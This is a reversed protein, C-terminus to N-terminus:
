DTDPSAIGQHRHGMQGSLNSGGRGGMFGYRGLNIVELTTMQRAIQWYQSALLVVTWSLQLTAWAAVSVLFPDFAPLACLETPLPCSSSINSPNTSLTM